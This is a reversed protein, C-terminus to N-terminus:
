EYIENGSSNMLFSGGFYATEDSSGLRGQFAKRYTVETMSPYAMKCTSSSHDIVKIEELIGDVPRLDRLATIVQNGCRDNMVRTIQLEAEITSYRVQPCLQLAPCKIYPTAELKVTNTTFNLSLTGAVAMEYSVSGNPRYVSLKSVKTATPFFAMASLSPLIATLILATSFFSKM